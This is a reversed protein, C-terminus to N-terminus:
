AVLYSNRTFFGSSISPQDGPVISVYAGGNTLVRRFLSANQKPFPRDFGAAAVVVTCGGAALAGRHAATDIGAAGGSIVAIDATALAVALEEAFEAAEPTPTRTGVIAVAPGRPLEGRVYLREPPCELDALRGPLESGMLCREEVDFM